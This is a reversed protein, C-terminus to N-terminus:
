MRRQKSALRRKRFRDAFAENSLTTTSQTAAREGERKLRDYEAGISEYVAGEIKAFNPWQWPAKVKGVFMSDAGQANWIGTLEEWKKVAAQERRFTFQRARYVMGNPQLVGTDVSCWRVRKGSSLPVDHEVFGLMALHPNYNNEVVSRLEHAIDPADFSFWLHKLRHHTKRLAENTIDRYFGQEYKDAIQPGTIEERAEDLIKVPVGWMLRFASAGELGWLEAWPSGPRPKLPRGFVLDFNHAPGSM